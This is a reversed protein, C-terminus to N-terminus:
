FLVVGKEVPLYYCLQLFVNILIKFCELVVPGNKIYIDDYSQKFTNM